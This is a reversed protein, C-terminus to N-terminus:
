GHRRLKQLRKRERALLRAEEDEEPDPEDFELHEYGLISRESGDRFRYGRLSERVDSNIIGEDELEDLVDRAIREDRLNVKTFEISRPNVGSRPITAEFYRDILNQPSLFVLGDKYVAHVRGDDSGWDVNVLTAGDTFDYFYFSWHSMRGAKKSILQLAHPKGEYLSNLKM